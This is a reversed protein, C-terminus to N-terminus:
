LDRANVAFTSGLDGTYAAKALECARRIVKHMLTDPIDYGEWDTKGDIEKGFDTQIDSLVIAVPKRLYTMEYSSLADASLLHFVAGGEGNRVDFRVCKRENPAKFPNGLLRNLDEHRVPNVAMLTGGRCEDSGNVVSERLVFMADAPKPVAYDKFRGYQQPVPLTFTETTVLTDLYRRAEEDAEFSTYRANTGAYYMRVLEDQARTLFLSREFDNLNPAAGSSINNYMVDFETRIEDATM